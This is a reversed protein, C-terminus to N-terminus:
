NEFVLTTQIRPTVPTAGTVHCVVANIVCGLPCDLDLGSVVSIPIPPTTATRLGGGAFPIIVERNQWQKSSLKVYGSEILSSAADGAVSVMAGVLKGAKAVTYPSGTMATETTAVSTSTFPQVFDKSM